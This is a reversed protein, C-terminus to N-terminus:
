KASEERNRLHNTLRNVAYSRAMGLAVLAPVIPMGSAVMIAGAVITQETLGYNAFYPTLETSIQALRAKAMETKSLQQESNREQM